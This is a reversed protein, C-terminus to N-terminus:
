KCPLLITTPNVCEGQGDMLFVRYPKVRTTKSLYRMNNTLAVLLRSGSLDGADPLASLPVRGVSSAQFSAVLLLSRISALTDKYMGLACFDGRKWCRVFSAGDVADRM